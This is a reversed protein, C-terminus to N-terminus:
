ARVVVVDSGVHEATPAIRRRPLPEFGVVASERELEAPSLLDLHVVYASTSHEGAPSVTERVREIATADGDQWVAVPQSSYVWGDRERLDPLPPALSSDYEPLPEALAAALLGGRVLHRYACALFSARGAPGGLLQITQMPVVCLGFRRGLAFDRADATVAEVAVAETARARLADLLAGDNDLATVEHGRGALDLAVRGTGAGIELVPGSAAAGALERWLPLDAAYSGCELDHWLVPDALAPEM